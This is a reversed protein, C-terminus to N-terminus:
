VPSKARNFSKARQRRRVQFKSEFLLDVLLLALESRQFRLQAFRGVHPLRNAAQPDLDLVLRALQVLFQARGVDHLDGPMRRPRLREVVDLQDEVLKDLQVPVSGKAVVPRHDGAEGLELVLFDQDDALVFTPRDFFLVFAIVAAGM